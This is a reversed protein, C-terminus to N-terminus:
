TTVTQVRDSPYQHHFCRQQKLTWVEGNPYQYNLPLNNSLWCKGARVELVESSSLRCRATPYVTDITFRKATQYGLAANNSM